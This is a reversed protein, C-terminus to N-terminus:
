APGPIRIYWSTHTHTHTFIPLSFHSAMLLMYLDSSHINDLWITCLRHNIALVNPCWACVFSSYFWRLRQFRRRHGVDAAAIAAASTSCSAMAPSKIHAWRRSIWYIVISALCCVDFLNLSFVEFQPIWNIMETFKNTSQYWGFSTGVVIQWVCRVNMSRDPHFTINHWPFVSQFQTFCPSAIQLAIAILSFIGSETQIIISPSLQALLTQVAKNAFQRLFFFWLSIGNM